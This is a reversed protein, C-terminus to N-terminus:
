EAPKEAAPEAAPAAPNEATAVAPKEAAPAIPKEVKLAKKIETIKNFEQQLKFNLEAFYGNLKKMHLETTPEFPGKKSTLSKMNLDNTKKMVNLWSMISDASKAIPEDGKVNNFISIMILYADIQMKAILCSDVMSSMLVIDPSGKLLPQMLSVEEFIRDRVELVSSELAHANFSLVAALCFAMFISKKM